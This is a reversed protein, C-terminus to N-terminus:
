CGLTSELAIKIVEDLELEGNIFRRSLAETEPSIKFGSLSVSARAFDMAQKRRRYERASILDNPDNVAEQETWVKDVKECGGRTLEFM